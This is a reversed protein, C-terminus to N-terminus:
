GATAVNSQKRFEYIIEKLLTNTKDIQHNKDSGGGKLNRSIFQDAWQRSSLDGNFNNFDGLQYNNKFKQDPLKNKIASLGYVKEKQEQIMGKLNTIGTTSTTEKLRVVMRQLKKNESELQQNVTIGSPGMVREGVNLTAQAVGDMFEQAAVLGALGKKGFIIYGLLGYERLLQNDSIYQVTADVGELIDAFGSMGERTFKEIDETSLSTIFQTTKNTLDTIIKNLGAEGMSVQVKKIAGNFNSFAAEMNQMQDSMGSAFQNNGIDQLYKTIDGSNNKVTTKVKQFTFQVSDGQKKSKIGFEKLREFEGTAADAVAEILQDLNKGM